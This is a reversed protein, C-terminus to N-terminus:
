KVTKFIYWRSFFYNAVNTICQDVLKVLIDNGKFLTIGVFLIVIDMLLTVARFFYFSWMEHFLAKFGNAHTAFVWMKNTFFAFTTALFWGIANALQYNM